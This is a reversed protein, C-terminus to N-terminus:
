HREGVMDQAERQLDNLRTKIIEGLGPGGPVVDSPLIPDGFIIGCKTFPYPVTYSDWANLLKRNSIGVGIPVIPCNAREALFVVGDQVENVPGKPGDPTICLVGGEDIRKAATLAAKIGTRGTSGRIIRYGLRSITRTQIEGDRSLSTIAWIGMDRCYYVPLLTRGHWIAFIFGKKEDAMERIREFGVVKFRTTFGLGRIVLSGLFSSARYMMEASLASM